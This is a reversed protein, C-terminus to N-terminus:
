RLVFPSGMNRAKILCEVCISTPMTPLPYTMKAPGILSKKGAHVKIRGPCQVIIDGGEITVNAGGATSFNIKKAAAWEIHANASIVNIEDRAQVKLEDTQAQIDLVDKAGVLQLGIGNEGKAIAGGLVGVAQGTHVRVQRGSVSLVDQGSMLAVSEGNALQVSQGAAIGLGSQAEVAIVPDTMHPLKDPGSSTNKASDDSRAAVISDLSVMGSVVGLAAKLPASKEDLASANAQATGLHTALGVTEHTVAVASFSEALKGAASLMAVIGTNAAAADRVASSHKAKYSSVLVGAGARVAGYADTRLEAGLGRVSGRYNDAAHILHGLNLESGAYTSKLQVRGQGDTDDFLLQAYGYGGGFEKSRIGWQATANRHGATDASAGHWVPSNGGALNGQGSTAHDHAAKFCSIDAESDRRGGPTPLVGGEGQGNYLAGIVVPRDIDGELFQVMVEQGIRPLFHHGMGGGASRQAVRVWCSANGSDQWHFRIRIRGFRDCYLENAGNPQDSGDAGVVTASQAGFATPKPAQGAASGALAPRWILASAVADFCNAYGTARAQAIALALEPVLDLRAGDELLEPIPGFLEALAHQAAPPMNNIGVSVVRLVTFAATQGLQQLPAGIVRVQTGARLSRVTSRGHWLQGRAEQEQMRLDAYRQAQDWNAYAYQGPVDYAELEPLKSGGPYLSPSSAGVSQRSKYDYSLVSTLSAHLRRQASLAQISDSEEVSRAGHFRIGSNAASGPDDPVASRQSSDAFLVLGPGDDTQEIRWCLGEEALIRRVFALDSERYQCCYSRPLAEAMFAGTDESWRWRASPLCSDFVSDVIDIVSKDQWVRSNRVHDLRWLWSSIRLRYRALGGDSGLTVAECIEGAFRERRGDALSVELVGAQGLLSAPELSADTSLAIVDRKGVEQVGDEAVFAEVLLSSADQDGLKLEYLRSASSFEALATFIRDTLASSM